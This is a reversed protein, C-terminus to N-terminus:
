AGEPKAPKRDPVSDAVELEAVREGSCGDVKIFEAVEDSSARELRRSLTGSVCCILADQRAAAGTNQDHGTNAPLHPTSQTPTSESGGVWDRHWPYQVVALPTAAVEV